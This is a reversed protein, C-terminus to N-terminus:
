FNLVKLTLHKSLQCNFERLAGPDDTGEIVWGSYCLLMFKTVLFKCTCTNKVIFVTLFLIFVTALVM